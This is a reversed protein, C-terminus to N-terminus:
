QTNHKGHDQNPSRYVSKVRKNAQKADILNKWWIQSTCLIRILIRKHADFVSSVLCLKRVVVTISYKNVSIVFINRNAFSKRVGHKNLKHGNKRAECQREIFIGFQSHVASQTTYVTLRWRKAYTHRERHTHTLKHEVVVHKYKACVYVDVGCTYLVCCCRASATRTNTAHLSHTSNASMRM